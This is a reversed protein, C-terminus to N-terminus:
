RHLVLGHMPGSTHRNVEAVMTGFVDGENLQDESEEATSFNYQMVQEVRDHPIGGGRDSIKVIFDVDNNAINISISPLTKAKVGPHSEVTARAANKLLEPLIYDLPMEIYPFRANVHGYIRFEPCVGYREETLQTVFQAWRQIVDHLNMQVNILGVHGPKEDKLHLHHTCLM